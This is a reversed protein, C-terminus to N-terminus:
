AQKRKRTSKEAADKLHGQQLKLKNYVRWLMNIDTHGMLTAVTMPDNGALLSNTGWTHRITYLCWKIGTDKRLRRVRCNLAFATWPNGDTNRFLAKEPNKLALRQIIGYAMDNLVIIRERKKGKSEEKPFTLTQGQIHRAAATRAEQPRCGTERMFTLFDQFERDKVKGFLTNYQEDKLYDERTNASPREVGEVPNSKIIHNKKAWNFVRMVSRVACNATTDKYNQANLWSTVTIPKLDVLKMAQVHKVFPGLFFKYFVLTKESRQKKAVQQTVIDLFQDVIEVVKTGDDAPATGAMLAHWQEFAKTKDKGLSHQKGNLFVCWTKRQERFFPENKNM